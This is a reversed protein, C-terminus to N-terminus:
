CPLGIWFYLSEYRWIRALASMKPHVAREFTRRVRLAQLLSYVTCLCFASLLFLIGIRSTRMHEVADYGFPMQLHSRRLNVRKGKDLSNCTKRVSFISLHSCQLPLHKKLFRSLYLGHETSQRILMSYSCDTIRGLAMKRSM